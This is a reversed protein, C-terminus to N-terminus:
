NLECEAYDKHVWVVAHRGSALRARKRSPVIVGSKTLESRRTRYSSGNCLFWRSLSEDTFGEAGRMLAYSVVESRIRVRSKQISEAAEKSTDPNEKRYLGRISEMYSDILSM